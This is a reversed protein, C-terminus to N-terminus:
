NQGLHGWDVRVAAEVAAHEGFVGSSGRCRCRWCMAMCNVAGGADRINVIM